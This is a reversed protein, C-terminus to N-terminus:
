PFAFGTVLTITSGKPAEGTPSESAVTAGGGGGGFVGTNVTVMFGAQTLEATAARVSM